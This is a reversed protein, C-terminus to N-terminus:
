EGAPALALEHSLQARACVLPDTGTYSGSYTVAAGREWSCWSKHACPACAPYDSLRLGRIWQFLPASQWIEAFPQKRVNGAVLPVSMCPQVDGQATVACNGRACNCSFRDDSFDRRPGRPLQDRLPGRYLRQLQVLDIRTDLSGRTGDHRATVTLDINYPLGTAQAQAKMQEVEDANDRMVIFKLRVPIGKDQMARVGAWTRDFSGPAQTVGDHTGATAGYFSVAVRNLNPYRALQGVVGPRLLVGNTLLGIAMNLESARDMFLFLDPHLLAEGGTFSLFFCGARHLDGILELIEPRGLEPGCAAETRPVDRDFNYCHRCRINCRQTIEVTAALPVHQQRAWAHLAGLVAQGDGDDCAPLLTM